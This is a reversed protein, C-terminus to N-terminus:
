DGHFYFIYFIISMYSTIYYLGLYIYVVIYSNNIIFTHPTLIFFTLNLKANFGKESEGAKLAWWLLWIVVVV